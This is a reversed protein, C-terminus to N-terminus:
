ATATGAHAKDCSLMPPTPALAAVPVPITVNRAVFVEFNVHRM